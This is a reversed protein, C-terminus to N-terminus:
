RGGPWEPPKKELNIWNSPLAEKADIFNLMKICLENDGCTRPDKEVTLFGQAQWSRLLDEVMVWDRESYKKFVWAPIYGYGEGM